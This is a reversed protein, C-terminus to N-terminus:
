KWWLKAARLERSSTHSIPPGLKFGPSSRTELSNSDGYYQRGENRHDRVDGSVAWGYDDQVAMLYASQGTTSMNGGNYRDNVGLLHAFEHAAVGAQVIRSFRWVGTDPASSSSFFGRHNVFSTATGPLADNKSIGIVNQAGSKTADNENGYVQVDVKTTVSYTIGDQKYTGSWAGEISGQIAAAAQNLQKQTLNANGQSYIAISATITITGTKKEEDTVISVTAKEGGDDVLRLPNNRVYAYKNWSQPDGVHSDKTVDDAGTFRGQTSSYYRAGFYDLGSESDREKQTFKQKTSDAANYGVISSRGGVSSPIEEGFPLYDFRAKVTGDAKTVVRTSGLHDSTLYSTASGGPSPTTDNTYEAALQGMANYVFITTVNGVVKKVRHGDGDYAYTTTGAKTYSVQRNEADYLMANAATTPDNKLNGAADFGFGSLQIRNTSQNFASFDASSGSQPTLAPTPIYSGVRVARNGYRDCDYTQRWAGSETATQLRNLSDYGYSQSMVTSGITISQTLVNGNNDHVNPNSNSYTYDLQLLSSPSTTTGLKIQTPQLRNNFVTQDILNNGLTMSSVAGQPAYGISSAYAKNSEGTKQGNVSTLRGATDYADTIRRLSPYVESTMENALNYGYSLGYNNSDTQQYSSTVRGLEDYSQYNGASSAAGGYCVAILRGISNTVTFNPPKGLPLTQSSDYYYNVAPTSQPDNTYTRSAMRNLFDYSYNTTVNRADTKQSVNSNLDYDYKVCWQSNNTVSDTLAPLLNTNIEQEANRARILRKLSDYAFYRTQAGQTVKALDDLVDYVYSTPQTPSAVTGLSGNSDPEDVRILRGLGDVISRRKKGAQDTVTTANGLYTSAVVATDSTTVTTVRGLADYGTDTYGYTPDSTTRYPNYTRKVRGMADFLQTTYITGEPASTRTDTTRGLGDYVVASTLIGDNFTVQDSETTILRLADDYTFRTRRSLSSINVAVIVETPRDLSDAYGAYGGYRGSSVTGNADKSNVPKGLYYDYQIFANQNLANTVNTAFAYTALPPNTNLEPPLPTENGEAVGDPHGFADTFDFTTAIINTPTSRPDVIKVVNGAIDYQAYGSISSTVNNVSDFSVARTTKTVNGRTYNITTSSSDLGTISSRDTLSAHFDESATQNYHDYEFVTRAKEVGAADFVSQQVPLSRLHVTQSADPNTTNPNVAAYNVGGNAVVYSTTTQRILAGPQGDSGFDYEKVITPNNFQDYDMHRKAVLAPSVDLLKTLTDTLRPNISWQFTGFSNDTWPANDELYSNEERRLSGTVISANTDMADVHDELGDMVDPYLLINPQLGDQVPAGSTHFTHEEHALLVHGTGDLHDVTVTGGVGTAPSYRTRGEINTGDPIVRREIVRRYVEKEVGTVNDDGVGSTTTYDYEFSGGTPLVMRALEAYSNYLFQYQRRDPLTVATVMKPNFQSQINGSGNLDSVPFLQTYTLFPQDSRLASSLCGHTVTITRPAGGFGTFTIVDVHSTCDTEASTDYSITVKRNLSDIIQTVRHNGDYSPFTIRNGNRDQIWSVLANDIRYRTGDRLLMYGSANTYLSAALAVPNQDKIEVDSIFTASEGKTTVFVRGRSFGDVHGCDSQQTTYPKGMTLQDVFEYETGDSGTFTLRTTTKEYIPHQASCPAIVPQKSGEGSRRGILIGPGYGVDYSQWNNRTPTYTVNTENGNTNFSTRKVHWSKTNLSLMMTYGASGRGGIALLPLRFNLNGNFLSVSDFGSLAYSGAPTGAALNSPTMQDTGAKTVTQATVAISLVILLVAIGFVSKFIEVVLGIAIRPCTM